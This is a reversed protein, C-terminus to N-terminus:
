SVAARDCLLTAHETSVRGAPITPDSTRLAELAGAKNAGDVMWVLARAANLARYTLSIRPWGQYPGSAAALDDHHDLIADNPVLSATHGDAGLGLHVVDFVGGNCQEITTAYQAACDVGTGDVPIAHLNALAEPLERLAHCLKVLNRDPHGDPAKREDVQFIDVSPWDIPHLALAELMLWPTTGGSFAVSARGRLRVAWGLHSAIEDATARALELPSAFVRAALM